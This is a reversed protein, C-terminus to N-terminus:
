AGARSPHISTYWSTKKMIMELYDDQTLDIANERDFKFIDYNLRDQGDLPQPDFELLHALYRKHMDLSAAAYEDSLPDHPFWQDNFRHDGRFTAFIPNLALNEEDYEHYLQNLESVVDVEPEANPAAPETAQECAAVGLALTSLLRRRNM